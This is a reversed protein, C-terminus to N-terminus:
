WDKKNHNLYTALKMRLSDFHRFAQGRQSKLGFSPPHIGAIRRGEVDKFIMRAKDDKTDITLTYRYYRTVVDTVTGLGAVIIKGSTEDAYNIAQHKGTFTEAAWQHSRKYLDAKSGTSPIIYTTESYEPPMADMSACGSLLILAILTLHKM